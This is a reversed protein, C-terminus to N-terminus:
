TEGRRSQRHDPNAATMTSPKTFLPTGQELYLDRVSIKAKRITSHVQGTALMQKKTTSNQKVIQILQLGVEDM